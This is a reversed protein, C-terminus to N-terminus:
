IKKEGRFCGGGFGGGGTCLEEFSGFWIEMLDLKLM